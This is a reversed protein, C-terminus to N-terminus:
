DRIRKTAEAHCLVWFDSLEPFTHLFSLNHRKDYETFFKFFNARDPAVNEKGQKMWDLVRQLRQVEYDKFGHFRTEETEMNEKMYSIADELYKTCDPTLIQLSQWVPARLYPTDFWVRQYTTSHQKRLVLINELLEKVGTAALNHMTIIFTLSNGYPIEALFRNVNSWVLDFDMGARSYAAQKGWSDCSVYQMFHEIRGDCLKQVRSLYEHMIKDNQSFNSTVALHIKRPNKLVYDFVRYTNEDLLPEGGTMRFHEIELYLRPWWKWFAEVYPNKEKISIVRKDGKFFEPANHLPLTPYAGLQNVQSQWKSSFQPSCYSCELNCTNGFNVEVYTPIVDLERNEVIRDFHKAAWPEGSRYHRDSLHGSKEIAWCYSCERPKFGNLMQTRADKKQRTNHLAAPNQQVENVDIKHLPPHYCSNTHGTGLHLSTQMWKALCFGEGVKDLKVKIAEADSLFKSVLAGDKKEVEDGKNSTM